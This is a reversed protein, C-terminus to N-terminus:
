RGPPQTERRAVHRAPRDSLRLVVFAYPRTVRARSSVDVQRDEIEFSNIMPDFSDRAARPTKADFYLGVCEAGMVRYREIQEAWDAPLRPAHIAWGERSTYHLAVVLAIGPSMMVVRKGAPCAARIADALAVKGRDLRFMGGSVWPSQVVVAAILCCPAVFRGLSPGRFRAVIRAFGLAGLIAVAPLMMLEYYDHDILKPALLIWFCLGMLTWGALGCSGATRRASAARLSMVGVAVLGLTVPGIDRVLFRGLFASYLGRDFLTSPAQWVLYSSPGQGSVWGQSVPNPAQVFMFLIWLAVPVVMSAVLFLFTGRLWARAGGQARRTMDALVLLVMLGWYKFAVACIGALATAMLWGRGLGALYRRYCAAAVLMMALMWPDPIVARGYFLFLPSISLLLAAVAARRVGLQPQLLDFFAAIGVLCGAISLLRGWLDWEGAVRYIAGLLGTYLPVEEALEIRRGDPALLDLTQRLPSYPPGAIARAKNAVYAQKACLNDAM